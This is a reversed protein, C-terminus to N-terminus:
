EAEARSAERLECSDDARARRIAVVPRRETMGDRHVGVYAGSSLASRVRGEAVGEVPVLNGYGNRALACGTFTWREGVHWLLGNLDKAAIRDLDSFDRM